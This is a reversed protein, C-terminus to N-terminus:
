AKRVGFMTEALHAAGVALASATAGWILDIVTLHWPWNALTAQNTLDYTAYASLGFFAGRRMSGNAFYTLASLYLAYFLAAASLEPEVALIAGLAPRYLHPTALTLWVGDLLTFALATLAFRRILTWFAM